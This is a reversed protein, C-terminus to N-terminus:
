DDDAEVYLGDRVKRGFFMRLAPTSGGLAVAADRLVLSASSVAQAHEAVRHPLHEQAAALRAGLAQVDIAVREAEAALFERKRM